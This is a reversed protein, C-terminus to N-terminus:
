LAKDGGGCVCVCVSVGSGEHVTVGHASVLDPYEAVSRALVEYQRMKGELDDRLQAFKDYLGLGLSPTWRRRGTDYGSM